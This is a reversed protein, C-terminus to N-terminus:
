PTPGEPKKTWEDCRANPQVSFHFRVCQAKSRTPASYTTLYVYPKRYNACSECRPVNTQYGMRTRQQSLKSM